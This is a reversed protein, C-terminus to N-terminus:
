RPSSRLLTSGIAATVAGARTLAIDPGAPSFRPQWALLHNNQELLTITQCNQISHARVASQDCQMRPELCRGFGINRARFFEAMDEPKPNMSYGGSPNPSAWYMLSLRKGDMYDGLVTKGREAGM